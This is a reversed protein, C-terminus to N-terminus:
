LLEQLVALRPEKPPLRSRARRGSREHRTPPSGELLVLVPTISRTSSMGMMRELSKMGNRDAERVRQSGYLSMAICTSGRQHCSRLAAPRIAGRCANAPMFFAAGM